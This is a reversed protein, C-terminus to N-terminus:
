LVIDFRPECLHVDLKRLDLCHLIAAHYPADTAYSSPHAPLKWWMQKQMDFMAGERLSNAVVVFGDTAASQFQKQKKFDNIKEVIAEPMESIKVWERVDKKSQQAPQGSQLKWVSFEQLVSIRGYDLQKSRVKGAAFIVGHNHPALATFQVNQPFSLNEARMWTPERLWNKHSADLSYPRWRDPMISLSAKGLCSLSGGQMCPQQFEVLRDRPWRALQEWAGSQLDYRYFIWSVNDKPELWGLEPQYQVLIQHSQTIDNWVLGLIKAAFHDELHALLSIRKKTSPDLPNMVFLEIKMSRGGKENRPRYLQLLLLGHAAGVVRVSTTRFSFASENTFRFFSPPYDIGCIQWRNKSPNYVSHGFDKCGVFCLPAQNPDRGRWIKRFEKSRLLDDWKKSVSRLRMVEYWPLFGLIAALLEDPLDNLQNIVQVAM